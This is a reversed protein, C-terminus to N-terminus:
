TIKSFSLFVSISVKSKKIGAM